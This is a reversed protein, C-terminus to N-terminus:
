LNLFFKCDVDIIKTAYEYLERDLDNLLTYDRKKFDKQYGSRSNSNGIKTPNFGMLKFIVKNCKENSYNLDLVFDIKRLISMAENLHERSPRFYKPHIDTASKGASLSWTMYNSQILSLRWGKSKQFHEHGRAAVTDLFHNVHSIARSVPERILISYVWDDCLDDLWNENMVFNFKLSSQEACTVRKPFRCGRGCWLPCFDGTWCNSTSATFNKDDLASKCLSTGGSKPIHLSLHKTINRREQFKHSFLQMHDRLCHPHFIGLNRRLENVEYSHIANNVLEPVEMCISDRRKISSYDNFVVAYRVKSISMITLTIVFICLLLASQKPTM